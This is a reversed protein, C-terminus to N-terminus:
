TFDAIDKIDPIIVNKLYDRFNAATLAQNYYWTINLLNSCDSFPGGGVSTVSNPITVSTLGTCYRFAYNGISTVSNPINVSTLGTCNYFASSGISTVSNPINVSTLRTCGDFASNGISTITSSSLDISVYKNARILVDRIGTLDSVNLEVVYPTSITNFPVGQLYINLEAISTFTLSTITLTGASLGNIANFGTAAAVDFTVTYTGVASPATTSGNYKVTITGISKGEKPTITASKPSGDYTVTGIGSINFDAPTPTVNIINLTGASLGNVANFDAVAAVDFTVTYTGGASPATTGGNYKVTISGNSKGAKPTITVIKSNGDYYFSGTGHINFDSAIPTANEITLTGASLGNAANFNAAAAVDFTVTYTGTASPATTSGNYKVTRSGTSKGTKPTVTVSKSNGDYTFTGTGGITYDAATPTANEITLTGASLGTAADFDGEQMVDFTVNYTGAASPATTSSNYKITRVGNSKGEKPTITVTKSNGDYTFTGTGSINFDAASPTARNVTLNNTSKTLSGYTITVPHGNHTSYVLNNGHAPNATINKTVFNGAAVDETSSDDHTLTVVLGTLNLTDGHTYSLKTPQTKIAISSVAKEDTKPFIYSLKVASGTNNLVSANQGNVTASNLGTFTHGSKATLTVSATYEKNGLFLNDAPSWSVSGIIFIDGDEANSIASATTSPTAGKVPATISISVSTISTAATAPFVATIVGSGAANNVSTVGAVMFYNASVIQLTYGPKPTLTITATYVTSAAFTYPNDNWIVTGSYQENETISTVPVGGNVPATVGHIVAIDIANAATPPFVATIIGSNANNSVSVTAGAVKFFNALVGQLTYGSKPTLTITASYITSAAFASPNGNWTVTGSYQENETIVRVPVEGNVPPTVGQIAAINIATADTSPFVVTIVGSNAANSVSVAGDVTFFDAAVGQLTFGDKVTLTIIAEYVTSATFVVPSENWEVIGSYQENETISTVPIGDKVPVKVGQIAAINIVSDDREIVNDDPEIVSDDSEIVSDDFTSEFPFQPLEKPEECRVLVFVMMVVFAIIGFLSNIRKVTM